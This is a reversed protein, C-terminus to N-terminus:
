IKKRQQKLAGMVILVVGGAMLAGALAIWLTAALENILLYALLLTGLLDLVIGFALLRRAAHPSEERWGCACHLAKGPQEVLEIGCSPCRM